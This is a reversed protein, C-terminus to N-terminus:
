GGGNPPRVCGVLALREADCIGPKFITRGVSNCEVADPGAAIGCALFARNEALCIGMGLSSVCSEVCNPQQDPCVVGAVNNCSAQCLQRDASAPEEVPTDVAGGCPPVGGCAGAFIAALIFGGGMRRSTFARPKLM